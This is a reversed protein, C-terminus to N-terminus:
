ENPNELAKKFNFLETITKNNINYVLFIDNGKIKKQILIKDNNIIEYSKINTDVLFLNNVDYDSIYLNINDSESLVNDNNTDDKIIKYYIFDADTSAAWDLTIRDSRIKGNLYGPTFNGNDDILNSATILPHSQPLTLFQKSSHIDLPNKEACQWFYFLLLVLIM